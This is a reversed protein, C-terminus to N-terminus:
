DSYPNQLLTLLRDIELFDKQQAKEIATQALYNRLVYKPNIRNMRVLRDDDRSEVEKQWSGPGGKRRGSWSLPPSQITSETVSNLHCPDAGIDHRRGKWFLKAQFGAFLAISEHSHLSFVLLQPFM